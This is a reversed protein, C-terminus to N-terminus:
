LCNENHTPCPDIATRMTCGKALTLPKPKKPDLLDKFPIYFVRGELFNSLFNKVIERREQKNLANQIRIKFIPSIKKKNVANQTQIASAFTISVLMFISLIVFILIKKKM